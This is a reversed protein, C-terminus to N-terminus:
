TRWVALAFISSTLGPKKVLKSFVSISGFM